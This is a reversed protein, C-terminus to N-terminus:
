CLRRDPDGRRLGEALAPGGEGLLRATKGALHQLRDIFRHDHEPTELHALEHLVVGLTAPDLIDDFRLPGRVNFALERADVDTVADELLGADSPDRAFFRVRVVRGAVARALWRVADAFRRQTEDPEVDEGGFESSRRRVYDDSTELVRALTMYAGHSIGSADIIHAGLQRARDDARSTGGLVSGRPFVRSVYADLLPPSLAAGAVVEHVWDARLDSRDLYNHLMAELLATKVALKYRDPVSDRGEGLPVRQAVDVHWPVNWPEVPLGMEFLHPQDGRRPTYVSVTTSGMAAREVGDVVIVTELHCASLALVSRPRRVTRGDVRLTTGKPPVCLRLMREAEVREDDRFRRRLTLRTGRTRENPASRRGADSFEVTTGVSEVVAQDMGAILEKLGRGMRGRRTPDDPKDSLFITYVLREDGIGTEADDEVVVEDAGLTVEIRGAREDFANQIAELLLRGLPRSASLRRWGDDAVEFWQPKPRDTM